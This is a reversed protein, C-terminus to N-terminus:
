ITCLRFINYPFLEVFIDM